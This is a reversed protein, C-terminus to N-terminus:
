VKVNNRAGLIVENITYIANFIIDYIENNLLGQTIYFWAIDITKWILGQDFLQQIQGNSGCAINSCAFIIINLLNNNKYEIRNMENILLGLIGEEIFIQNISDDISLLIGFVRMM